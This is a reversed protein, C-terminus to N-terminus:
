NPCSHALLTSRPPLDCLPLESVGHALNLEDSESRKLRKVVEVYTEGLYDGHKRARDLDGTLLGKSNVDGSCGQLFAVPIGDLATSFHDAATQAYEGFICPREPHFATAPHATFQIMALVPGGNSDILVVVPAETDVDGTFDRALLVRDDERM